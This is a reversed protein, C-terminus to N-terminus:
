SICGNKLMRDKRIRNRTDCLRDYLINLNMRLMKHERELDDKKQSSSIIHDRAFTLYRVVAILM